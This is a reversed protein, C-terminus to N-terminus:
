ELLKFMSNVVVYTILAVEKRLKTVRVCDGSGAIVPFTLLFAGYTGFDTRTSRVRTALGASSSRSVM